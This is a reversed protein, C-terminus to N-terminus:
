FIGADEVSRIEPFYRVMLPACHAEVKAELHARDIEQLVDFKQPNKFSHSAEVRVAHAPLGAFRAIEHAKETIENTRVIFLRDAPITTLVKHNHCAWYSLYGDLTYLGRAKLAQEAPPHEFEDARFRFERLRIWDKSTNRRLSDNIFSNLWSYCDRITLLFRADSFEHLLYDILFFNLQSSDVDLQLREDRERLYARVEAEAVQGQAIELIKRIVPGSEAEHVSRVTSDFMADISHTGSKATGVCYLRAKRRYSMRRYTSTAQHKTKELLARIRM